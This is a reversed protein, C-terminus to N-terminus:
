VGLVSAVRLILKSNRDLRDIRNVIATNLTRPVSGGGGKGEGETHVHNYCAVGNVVSIAGSERLVM